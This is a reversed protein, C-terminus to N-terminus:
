AARRKTGRRVATGFGKPTGRRVETAVGTSAARYHLGVRETVSRLGAAAKPDVGVATTRLLCRQVRGVPRAMPMAMTQVHLGAPRSPAPPAPVPAMPFHDLPGLAHLADFLSVSDLPVEIEPDLAVDLELGLGLEAGFDLSLEPDLGVDVDADTPPPAKSALKAHRRRVHSRSRGPLKRAIKAWDDGVQAYMEMLVTDEKKKWGGRAEAPGLVRNRVQKASRGMGRCIKAWGTIKLGRPSKRLPVEKMRQRLMADEESTWPEYGDRAPPTFKRDPVETPM